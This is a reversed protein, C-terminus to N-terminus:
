AASIKANQEARETITVFIRCPIELETFLRMSHNGVEFSTHYEKGFWLSSTQIHISVSIECGQKLDRLYQIQPRVADSLATIHADIPRSGDIKPSYYWGDFDCLTQAHGYREGKRSLNTPALGLSRSIEDLDLSAGKIILSISFHTSM